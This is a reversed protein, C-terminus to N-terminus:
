WISYFGNVSTNITSNNDIDTDFLIYEQMKGNFHGSNNVSRYGLGRFITPYRTNGTVRFGSYSSTSLAQYNGNQAIRALDTQFNFSFNHLYNGAPIDASTQGYGYVQVGAPASFRQAVLLYSLRENTLNGTVPGYCILTNNESGSTLPGGDILCQFSTAATINNTPANVLYISQNSTLTYDAASALRSTSGDFRVAAKGNQTELSGSNVIRPQNANTNQIYDRGNGSQDYWTKVFGSGQGVFSLLSVTDLYNNLFGINQTANDSSRRVEMCNGTYATKLRRVSLVIKHSSFAADDLLLTVSPNISQQLIGTTLLYSM